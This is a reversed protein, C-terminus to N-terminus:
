RPRRPPPPPDFKDQEEAILANYHKTASATDLQAYFGLTTRLSKHGLLKQATVFDGPRYRLYNAAGVHRFQHPTMHIGIHKELVETIQQSLTGQAKATGDVNTFLPCSAANGSLRHFDKLYRDIMTSLEKPLEFELPETNKVQDPEFVLRYASGPGGLRKLEHGVRIAILNAMRVPAMLLLETAVALQALVMAKETSPGAKEALKMLQAPLRLLRARTEPDDFHRLLERNKATLGPPIPPLKRWLRRLEDLHAQDVRVWEKAITYLM